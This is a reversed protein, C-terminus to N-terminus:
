RSEPRIPARTVRPPGPRNINQAQLSLNFKPSYFGCRNRRSRVSYSTLRCVTASWLLM